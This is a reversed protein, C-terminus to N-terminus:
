RGLQRVRYFRLDAGPSTRDLFNLLATQSLNTGLPAWTTTDTSAELVYWQEPQALITLAVQKDPMVNMTQIRPPMDGILRAVSRRQRGNVETFAGGILVKLDRQIAVASVSQPSAGAGPDFSTDVSGDPNVRAIGNRAFLACCSPNALRFFTGGILVRGDPQLAVSWVKDGTPVNPGFSDDLSGDAHIRMLASRGRGFLITFDGALIVGGDSQVAISYVGTGDHVTNGSGPDFTPDLTGDPKLRAVYTRALGDMSTFSGGVLLAGDKQLRLCRVVGDPMPPVFATDLSGDANLRALGKRPVGQVAEFDGGIVVRQDPQVCVAVVEQNAGTGPDFTTDVSGDERLRAIRCRSNMGVTTFSGGIVIKGEDTYVVANVRDGMVLMPQFANDLSGDATLRALADRTVGGVHDFDGAILIKGNPETAISRVVGRVGEGPDFTEDLLGPTSSEDDLITLVANSRSGLTAGGTPDHLVLRVTEIGEFRQDDLITIQFTANTQYSAFSLTGSTAVYDEGARADGDFLSYGVTFPDGDLQIRHVSIVVTGATENVSFGGTSFEVPGASIGATLDKPLGALTLFLVAPVFRCRVAKMFLSM